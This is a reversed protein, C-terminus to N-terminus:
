RDSSNMANALASVNNMNLAKFPTIPEVIVGPPRLMGGAENLGPGVLFPSRAQFAEDEVNSNFRGRNINLKVMSM